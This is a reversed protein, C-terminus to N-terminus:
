FLKLQRREAEIRKVALLAVAGSVLKVVTQGLIAAPNWGFALVVFVISDLPLGFLNSLLVRKAFSGPVFTYILWDVGEAVIFALASALALHPNFAVTM